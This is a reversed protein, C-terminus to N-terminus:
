SRVLPIAPNYPLKTNLKEPVVLNEGLPQVVKGKRLRHMPSWNGMDEDFSTRDKWEGKAGGKRRAREEKRRGGEKWGKKRKLFLLWELSM